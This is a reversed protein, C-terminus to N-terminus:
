EKTHAKRALFAVGAANDSSFEKKAFYTNEFSSLRSKIGENSMVGGGYLIPLDYEKRLNATLKELTREVFKLAYLAIDEPSTGKDKYKLVKNELGSLNCNLGKVCVSPTEPLDGHKAMQELLAGCPFKLGLMVGTRDIAQGANLDLTGGINKVTLKGSRGDCLLIETTGGSVHFANFEKELLHTCGASYAAAAIHGEQHSFKYVPVGLLSGLCDALTEGAKFVPMYSGEVDRPRDSCGIAIIHTKGVAKAVEPLNKVHAFLADSQRLGKEGQKVDLIIKENAIVNGERDCLAMSTTYNSTDIGLFAEM